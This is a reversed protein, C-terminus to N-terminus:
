NRYGKLMVRDIKSCDKTEECHELSIKLEGARARFNSMEESAQNRKKRWIFRNQFIKFKIKELATYPGLTSMITSVASVQRKTEKLFACM